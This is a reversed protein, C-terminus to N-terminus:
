KSVGYFRLGIMPLLPMQPIQRYKPEVIVANINDDNRFTTQPNIALINNRNYTNIVSLSYDARAGFFPRNQYTLFLDLRHYDPLRFNNTKKWILPDGTHSDDIELPDEERLYASYSWTIPQGTKYSFGLGVLWHPSITYNLSTVIDNRSDTRSPYWEGENIGDFRVTSWSLTYAMSLEVRNLKIEHQFELGYARGEGTTTVQTYVPILAGTGNIAKYTEVPDFNLLEKFVKHYGEVTFSGYRADDFRFGLTFTESTSPKITEETWIWNDLLLQFTGIGVSHFYQAFQGYGATFLWNEGLNYQANVRPLLAIYKGQSFYEFRVGPFLKFNQMSIDLGASLATNIATFDEDLGRNIISANITSRAPLDDTQVDRRYDIEEFLRGERRFSHRVIEFGTELKIDDSLDRDVHLNYGLDWLEQDFSKDLGYFNKETVTRTRYSLGASHRIRQQWNYDISNQEANSMSFYTAYIQNSVKFGSYTSRLRIGAAINSWGFDSTRDDYLFQYNAPNMAFQRNYTDLSGLRMRDASYFSSVHLLHNENIRYRYRANVDIFHYKTTQKYQEEDPGEFYQANDWMNLFPEMYTRRFGLSFSSKDNIRAGAALSASLLGINVSYPSAQRHGDNTEIRMLSSLRNGYRAPFVGKNFEVSEIVDSNFSGFLGFFHWPNYVPIGDILILNQDNRGGRVYLGGSYDSEAKVGPLNQIVRILDIEGFVRPSTQIQRASIRTTSLPVQIAFDSRETQETIVLSELESSRPRLVINISEERPLTILTDITEFGIYSVRLTIRDHSINPIIFLGNRDTSAGTQLEPIFVSAGSLPQKEAGYSVVIGYITSNQAILTGSVIILIFTVALLIRLIKM